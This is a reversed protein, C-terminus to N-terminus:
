RGTVTVATLFVDNEKEKGKGKGKGKGKWIDVGRFSLELELETINQSGIDLTWQRITSDCEQPALKETSPFDARKFHRLPKECLASKACGRYM